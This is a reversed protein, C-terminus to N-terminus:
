ENALIKNRQMMTVVTTQCGCVRPKHTIHDYTRCELYYNSHSFSLTMANSWSGKKQSAPLNM